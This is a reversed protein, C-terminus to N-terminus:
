YAQDQGGPAAPGFQHLPHSSAFPVMAQKGALEMREQGVAPMTPDWVIRSRAAAYAAYMTGVKVILLSTTEVVLCILIIYIPLTVATAMIAELSALGRRARRGIQRSTKHSRIVMAPGM